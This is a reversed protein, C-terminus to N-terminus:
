VAGFWPIIPTFDITPRPAALGVWVLFDIGIHATDVFVPLIILIVGSALAILRTRAFIIGLIISVGILHLIGFYIFLDPVFVYTVLSVLLAASFIVGARRVFQLPYNGEKYKRSTIALMMGVLLLFLGATAKQFLGFFGSYLDLQIFGFFNLDWLFHFIIMMIIAIGRLVDLEWFRTFKNIRLNPNIQIKSNRQIKSDLHSKSDLQSKSSAKNQKNLKLQM